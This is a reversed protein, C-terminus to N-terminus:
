FAQPRFVLVASGCPRRDSTFRKKKTQNVMSEYFNVKSGLILHRLAGPKLSIEGLSFSFLVSIVCLFIFCDLQIM